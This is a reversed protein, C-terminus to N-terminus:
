LIMCCVLVMRDGDDCHRHGCKHGDFKAPHHNVM